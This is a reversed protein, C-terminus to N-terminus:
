HIRINIYKVKRSERIKLNEPKTTEMAKVIIAKVQCHIRIENGYFNGLLIYFQVSTCLKIAQM